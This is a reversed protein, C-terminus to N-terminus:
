FCPQSRGPPCARPTLGVAAARLNLTIGGSDPLTDLNVRLDLYGLRSAVLRYRGCPPLRLAFRGDADTTDVAATRHWWRGRRQLRVRVASVGKGLADVAIGELDVTPGALGQSGAQLMRVCGAAWLLLGAALCRLVRGVPPLNSSGAM